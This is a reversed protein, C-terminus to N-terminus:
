GAGPGDGHVALGNEYAFIVAHVRDRLELKALIRGVHTKVTTESVFLRIAIEPNSLGAAMADFVDHERATLSDLVARSGAPTMAVQDGLSDLLRRTTSPALVRGPHISRAELLAGVEQLPRSLGAFAKGNITVTGRTPRDLGVIMRMTTSKGAGNPGLFGTVQGPRVQFSLDDVAVAEGYQKRLGHAEIM